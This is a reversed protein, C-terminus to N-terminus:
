LAAARTTATTTAAAAQPLLELLLEAPALADLEEVVVPAALAELPGSM